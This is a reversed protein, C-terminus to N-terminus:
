KCKNDFMIVTPNHNQRKEVPPLQQWDGYLHKLYTRTKSPANFSKGEFLVKKGPLYIRKDMTQKKAAYNSGFSILYKGQKESGSWKDWINFLTWTPIICTIAKALKRPLSKEETKLRRSCAFHHIFRLVSAKFSFYFGTNKRVYDLPFVDIFIGKNSEINRISEEAFVTGNKRVKAFPLWYYKDTTIHHLFYKEGLANEDRCVSLFRNYDKRPIGIDLDDDWPIFGKHREAGLLTGAILFYTINNRECVEAVKSLIELQTKQLQKLTDTKM